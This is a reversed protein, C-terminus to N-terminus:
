LPKISRCRGDADPEKLQYRSNDVFTAFKGKEDLNDFTAVGPCVIAHRGTDGYVIVPCLLVGNDTGLYNSQGYDAVFRGKASIVYIDIKKPDIISATEPVVSNNPIIESNDLYDFVDVPNNPLRWIILDYPPDRSAQPSVNVEKCWNKNENNLFVDMDHVWM